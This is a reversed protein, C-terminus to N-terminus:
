NRVPMITVAAVTFEFMIQGSFADILSLVEFVM